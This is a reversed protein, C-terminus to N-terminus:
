ANVRECLGDLYGRFTAQLKQLKNDEAAILKMISSVNALNLYICFLPHTKWYKRFMWCFNRARYYRRSPSFNATYFKYGCMRHMTPRNAKHLLVATKGEDFIWGHNRLKLCYDYDVCDIFFDEEFWGEKQFVAAPMLSGSSQVALLEGKSTRVTGPVSANSRADVYSPAMIAIKQSQPHKIAADLLRNVFGPLPKSDQDFLVVWECGQQLGWRIGANLAAAIGLNAGNEILHVDLTRCAERLNALPVEASGNDVVVFQRVQERIAALNAIDEPM